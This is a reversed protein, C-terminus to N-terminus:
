FLAFALVCTSRSVAVLFHWKSQSIDRLSQRLILPPVLVRPSTRLAPFLSSTFRIVLNLSLACLLRLLHVTRESLPYTM